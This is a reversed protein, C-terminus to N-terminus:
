GEIQPQERRPSVDIRVKPVVLARAKEGRMTLFFGEDTKKMYVLDAIQLAMVIKDRARADPIEVAVHQVDIKREAAIKQLLRWALTMETETLFCCAAANGWAAFTMRPVALLLDILIRWLPQHDPVREHPSRWRLWAALLSLAGAGAVFVLSFHAPMEADVGGMSSALLTLWYAGLYLLGWFVVAGALSLAALALATLNHHFFHARLAPPIADRDPM